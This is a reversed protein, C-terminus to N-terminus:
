EDKTTKRNKENLYFDIKRKMYNKVFIFLILGFISVSVVIILIIRITENM